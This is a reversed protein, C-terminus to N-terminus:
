SILLITDLAISILPDVDDVDVVSGIIFCGIPPPADLSRPSAGEDAAALSIPVVPPAEFSCPSVVVETVGILPADFSTPSTWDGPAALSVPPAEFNNPSAGILPDVLIMSPGVLSIPSEEFEFFSFSGPPADFSNPSAADGLPATLIMPVVTLTGGLNISWGTGTEADTFSIPGTLTIFGNIPVDFISPALTDGM